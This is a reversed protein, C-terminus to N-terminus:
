FLLLLLLAQLLLVFDVQLIEVADVVFALVLILGLLVEELVYLVAELLKGLVHTDVVSVTLLLNLLSDISHFFVDADNFGFAFKQEFFPNRPGLEFILHFDDLFNRQALLSHFFIFPSQLFTLFGFQLFFQSRLCECDLGVLLTQFTCFFLLKGVQHVFVFVSVGTHLVDLLRQHFVDM